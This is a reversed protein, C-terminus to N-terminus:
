VAEFHCDLYDDIRSYGLSQYLRVAATNEPEVFLFCSRRSAQTLLRYTVARVLNKGYGRNRAQPDTYVTHVRAWNPTVGGYFAMAVPVRDEWIFLQRNTITQRVSDKTEQESEEIRNESVFQRSWNLIWNSDRKVALRCIGPASSSSSSSAQAHLGHSESLGLGLQRSVRGKTGFSQCFSEAAFARAFIGDITGLHKKIQEGLASAAVQDQAAFLLRKGSVNLAVTTIRGASEGAYYSIKAKRGGPNRALTILSGLLLNNAGEDEMLFDRCRQHLAQASSYEILEM